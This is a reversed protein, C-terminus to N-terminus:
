PRVEAALTQWDSLPRYPPYPTPRLPGDLTQVIHFQGDAGAQGIRLWRWVHRSASDVAVVGSPGAISQRALAPNAREPQESGAARVAAAWLHVGNYASESADSTAREAGFRSRFAAVFRRNAEGPLSQFYNWAAYHAPHLLDVGLSALENEGIGFSMVPIRELAYLHLARFFAGNGAGSLNNLILDPHLRRIEAAVADFEQSDQALYREALLTADAGALLDRLIHGAIRSPAEVSGVLYVRKGFQDVAWRAAPIIQQNPVAGTYLINPSQELGEYPQAYVLLHRRREVIPKLAQRCASSDCAFLVSAQEQQILREAEQAFVAPESRGDAVIAQLPRGLLGGSANIEDLALQVAEALPAAGAAQPGSFSFLVGVRIPRAPQAPIHRLFGLWLVACLALVALSLPKLYRLPM